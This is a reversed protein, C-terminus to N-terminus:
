KCFSVQSMPMDGSLTRFQFGHKPLEQKMWQLTSFFQSFVLSKSQPEEDRIRKLEAVLREFKSKFMLDEIIIKKKKMPKLDSNLEHEDGLKDKGKDKDKDGVKGKCEAENLLNVIRLDKSKIKTRCSPCDTSQQGAFCGEICGKCFIHPIPKCTTAHPDEVQDLCIPCEINTNGVIDLGDLGGISKEKKKIDGEDLQAGSCALRLPM